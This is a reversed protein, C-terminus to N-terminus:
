FYIGKELKDLPYYIAEGKQFTDFYVAPPSDKEMYRISDIEFVKDVDFNGDKILNYNQVTEFFIKLKELSLSTKKIYSLLYEHSPKLKWSRQEIKNYLEYRLNELRQLRKERDDIEKELKEKMKDLTRYGEKIVLNFQNLSNIIEPPILHYSYIDINTRKKFDDIIKMQINRFDKNIKEAISSINDEPDLRLFLIYRNFFQNIEKQTERAYKLLKEKTGFKCSSALIITLWIVWFKLVFEFYDRKYYYLFILILWFWFHYLFVGKFFVKFIQSFFNKIFFKAEDSSDYFPDAKWLNKSIIRKSRLFDFSDIFIVVILFSIFYAIWLVSIITLIM